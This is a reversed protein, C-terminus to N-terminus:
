RACSAPGRSWPAPSREALARLEGPTGVLVTTEDGAITLAVQDAALETVDDAAWLEVAAASAATLEYRTGM